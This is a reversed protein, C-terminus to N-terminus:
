ETKAKNKDKKKEAGETRAETKTEKVKGEKKGGKSKKDAPAAPGSAAAVQQRKQIVLAM